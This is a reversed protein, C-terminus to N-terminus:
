HRNIDDGIDFFDVLARGSEGDAHIVVLGFRDGLVEALLADKDPTAVVVGDGDHVFEAKKIM